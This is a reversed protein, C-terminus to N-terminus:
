DVRGMRPAVGCEACPFGGCFIEIWAGRIPRSMSVLGSKKVRSIMEIWAGWVPRSQM